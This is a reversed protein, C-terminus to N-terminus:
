MIQKGAHTLALLEAETTSTTITNQRIACWDVPCDFLHFVYGEFSKRTAYDDSYSIDSSGEFIKISKNSMGSNNGDVM